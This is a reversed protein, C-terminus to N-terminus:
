LLAGGGEEQVPPLPLPQLELNNNGTRSTDSWVAAQQQKQVVRQEARLHEEWSAQAGADFMHLTSVTEGRRPFRVSKSGSSGTSVPGGVRAQAQFDEAKLRLMQQSYDSLSYQGAGGDAGLRYVLGKRELDDRHLCALEYLLLYHHYNHKPVDREHFELEHANRSMALLFDVSSDHSGTSLRTSKM